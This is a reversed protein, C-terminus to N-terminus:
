TWLPSPQAAFLEGDTRDLGWLRLCIVEFHSSYTSLADRVRKESVSM